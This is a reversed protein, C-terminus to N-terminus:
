LLNLMLSIGLGGKSVDPKINVIDPILRNFAIGTPIYYSLIFSLFNFDANVGIRFNTEHNVTAKLDEIFNETSFAYPVSLGAEIIGIKFGAGIYGFRFKELTDVRFISTNIQFLPLNLRSEFGFYYKNLNTITDLTSMDFSTVDVPVTGLVGVQLTSAFVPVSAFMIVIILLLITKKM